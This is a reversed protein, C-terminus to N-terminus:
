WGRAVTRRTMPLGFKRSRRNRWRNNLVTAFLEANGAVSLGKENERAAFPQATVRRKQSRSESLADFARGANQRSNQSDRRANKRHRNENTFGDRIDARTTSGDSVTDRQLHKSKVPANNCTQWLSQYTREAM